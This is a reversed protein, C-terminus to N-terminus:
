KLAGNSRPCYPLTFFLKYMLGCALLHMVEDRFHIPRDTMFISPPGFAASWDIITHAADGANTCPASYHWAYGSHDNQMMLVFRDGTSSRGSNLYNLQFLDNLKTGFIAPEIQRPVKEGSM